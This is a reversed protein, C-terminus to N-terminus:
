ARQLSPFMEEKSLIPEKSASTSPTCTEQPVRPGKAVETPHFEWQGTAFFYKNKWGQNSFYKNDMQIFRGHRSQFNYLGESKPNKQVRYM